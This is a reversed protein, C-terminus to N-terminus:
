KQVNEHKVEAIAGTRLNVLVPVKDIELFYNYYSEKYM